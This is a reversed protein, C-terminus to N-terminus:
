DIMPTEKPQKTGLAHHITRRTANSDLVPNEHIRSLPQLLAAERRHVAKGVVQIHFSSPFQLTLINDQGDTGFFQLKLTMPDAFWLTIAVVIQTSNFAELLSLLLVVYNLPNEGTQGKDGIEASAPGVIPM